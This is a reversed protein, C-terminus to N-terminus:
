KDLAIALIANKMANKLRSTWFVRLERVAGAQRGSDEGCSALLCVWGVPLGRASRAAPWALSVMRSRALVSFWLGGGVAPHWKQSEEGALYVRGVDALAFAGMEGPLVFFFSTLRV